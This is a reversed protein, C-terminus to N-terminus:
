HLHTLSLGEGTCGLGQSAPAKLKVRGQAKEQDTLSSSELKFGSAIRLFIAQTKVIGALSSQTLSVM